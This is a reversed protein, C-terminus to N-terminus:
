IPISGKEERGDEHKISKLPTISLPNLEYYIDSPQRQFLRGNFSVFTTEHEVMATLSEDDCTLM